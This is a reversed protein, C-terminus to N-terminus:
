RGSARAAARALTPAPDPADLSRVLADFQDAPMLTEDSRAVVRDAERHVARLVFASVTENTAQAAASILRKTSEDVRIELRSTRATM